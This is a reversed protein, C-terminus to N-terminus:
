DHKFSKININVIKVNKVYCDINCYIMHLIRESLFDLLRNQNLKKEIVPIVEKYTEYFEFLIEFLISCIKDFISEEAIFMNYPIIMNQTKLSDIMEVKLPINSNKCLGYLLNWNISGHCLSYHNFISTVFPNPVELAETVNIPSPVYLTNYEPIFEEINWFHRYQNTGKFESKTNKWVWYLGTLEGFHNNLHSISYGQDDLIYGKEILKVRYDTDYSIAGCM